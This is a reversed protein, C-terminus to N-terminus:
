LGVISKFIDAATRNSDESKGIIWYEHEKCLQEPDDLISVSFGFSEFEKVLDARSDQPRRYVNALIVGSKAICRYLEKIQQNYVRFQFVFVAVVLDFYNDEYSLKYDSRSFVCFNEGDSIEDAAKPDADSLIYTMGSPAAAMLPLTGAGIEFVITPSAIELYKRFVEKVRHNAGGILDTNNSRARCLNTVYEPSLLHLNQEHIYLSDMFRYLPKGDKYEISGGQAGPKLQFVGPEVETFKMNM